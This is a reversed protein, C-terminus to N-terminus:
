APPGTAVLPALREITEHIAEISPGFDVLCAVETVGAAGFSELVDACAAPDGILSQGDLYRPASLRAVAGVEAAREEPGMAAMRRGIGAARRAGAFPAAAEALYAELAAGGKRQAAHHSGTVHAHLMVTVETGAPRRERYGGISAALADRSRGIMNTL